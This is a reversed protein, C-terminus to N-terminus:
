NEILHIVFSIWIPSFGLIIGLIHSLIRKIEDKM